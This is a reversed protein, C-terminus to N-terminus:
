FRRAKMDKRAVEVIKDLADRYFEYDQGYVEWPPNKDWELEPRDRLERLIAAADSSLVFGALATAKKVEWYARNYKEALEKLKDDAYGAGDGYDAKKIECYQLLDYLAEILQTYMNAKREWWRESYFRRLALHATLYVAVIAVLSPLVNRLIETM